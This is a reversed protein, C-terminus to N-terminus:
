SISLAAANRRTGYMPNRPLYILSSCRFSAADPWRMELRDSASTAHPAPYAQVDTDMLEPSDAVLSFLIM